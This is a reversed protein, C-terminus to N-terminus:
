KGIIKFLILIGVTTAAVGGWIGRRRQTSPPYKKYKWYYGEEENPDVKTTFAVIFGIIGVAINLLGFIVNDKM